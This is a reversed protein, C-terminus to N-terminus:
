AMERLYYKAMMRAYVLRLKPNSTMHALELFTHRTVAIIPSKMQKLTM